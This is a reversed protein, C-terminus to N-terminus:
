NLLRTVNVQVGKKQDDGTLKYFQGPNLAVAAALWQDYLPAPIARAFTAIGRWTLPLEDKQWEDAESARTETKLLSGLMVARQHLLGWEALHEPNGDAVFATAEVGYTDKVYTRAERLLAEYVADEYGSCAGVTLRIQAGNPLTAEVATREQWDWINM